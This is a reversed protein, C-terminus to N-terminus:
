LATKGQAFEEPANQLFIGLADRQDGGATKGMPGAFRLVAPDITGEVPLKEVLEAAAVARAQGAVAVLFDVAFRAGAAVLDAGPDGEGARHLVAAGFDKGVLRDDGPGGAAAQQDIFR